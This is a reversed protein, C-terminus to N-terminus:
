FDSLYVMTGQHRDFLQWPRSSIDCMSMKFDINLSQAPYGRQTLKQLPGPISCTWKWACQATIVVWCITPVTLDGHFNGTLRPLAHVHQNIEGVIQQGFKTPMIQLWVFPLCYATRFKVAMHIVFHLLCREQWQRSGGGLWYMVCKVNCLWGIVHSVDCTIVIIGSLRVEQFCKLNTKKEIKIM